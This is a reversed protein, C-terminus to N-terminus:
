VAVPDTTAETQQSKSRPECGPAFNMDYFSDYGVNMLVHRLALHWAAVDLNGRHTAAIDFAETGPEKEFVYEKTSQDFRVSTVVEEKKCSGDIIHHKDDRYHYPDMYNHLIRDLEGLHMPVEFSNLHKRLYNLYNIFMSSRFRWTHRTRNSQSFNPNADIEEVTVTVDGTKQDIGKLKLDYVFGNQTDLIGRKTAVPAISPTAPALTPVLQNIFQTYDFPM